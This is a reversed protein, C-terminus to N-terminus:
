IPKQTKNLLKIIRERIDEKTNYDINYYKNHFSSISIKDTKKTKLHNAFFSIVEKQNKNQIVGTEILLRIFYAFQSVSLDTMLKFNEQGELINEEPFKLSLQHIKEYHALEEYIWNGVREKISEQKTKYAFNPKTQAQNLKKQYFSLKEIKKIIDNEKKIDQTIISTLYNFLRFSNFNLYILNYTLKCDDNKKRCDSCESIIEKYLEKLYILKKFSINKNNYIFEDIPYRAIKLLDCDSPLKQSVLKERFEMQGIIRYSGPIYENQNFYKGFYNEIYTLVQELQSYLYFLFEPLTKIKVSRSKAGFSDPPIHNIISNCLRILCTQHRQIYREVQKDNKLNFMQEGFSKKIRKIENRVDTILTDVDGMMNKAPEPSDLSLCKEILTDIKELEYKM